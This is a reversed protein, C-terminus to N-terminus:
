RSRLDADVLDDYANDVMDKHDAPIEEIDYTSGMSDNDRM